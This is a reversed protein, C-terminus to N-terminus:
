STPLYLVTCYVAKWQDMEAKSTIRDCVQTGDSSVDGGIGFAFIFFFPFFFSLCRELVFERKISLSLSFSFSFSANGLM